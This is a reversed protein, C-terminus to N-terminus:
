PKKPAYTGLGFLDYLRRQAPSMETLVRRARPRGREGQYFLVTEQVGGLESLLERVSLHLGAHEAERAMLRAVALALVCYFVHVRIKQDTWHFMPSFSVVKPDKMQRFDAEAAEQSRYDAVVQATSAVETGKDTFLVRKGFIEEELGARAKPKTRYRLRLEDPEEGSLTVAVVRCLWRPKLIQAIEAEVRDKAKKTKGRALRRQLESLQRYAKALTQDFGASQKSHLGDSHTVVVRRAKGFVTKEAEFAVLGAFREADAPRYDSLPVALLDPHDSPPLSGVFHLPLGELLEYNDGSNQGADFVLTLRRAAQGAGEGSLSEFREALEEVMAGFQTVDPRNGPYAHSVLPVGGDTSVVLGLGVIRLDARKQKSHGRQAIPAKDNASAIWTAFNTMDLVLGSLDVGFTEVMGTVIRREVEKLQAESIAGMAEWFRRHDLAGAALGLWRDAATKAWWDSFALKSCPDTVRNLTALAIYTGVSAGADSRRTGVVEDIVEAVRLRGLMAWTAAVDGFALHRTRDPVATAGEVAAEIDAAKGLYRQSIVKPKGGVRAVERLYYYTQGKITKGIISAV